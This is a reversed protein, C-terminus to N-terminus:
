TVTGWQFSHDTQIYLNSVLITSIVIILSVDEVRYILTIFIIKNLKMKARDLGPSSSDLGVHLECIKRVALAPVLISQVIIHKSSINNGCSLCM